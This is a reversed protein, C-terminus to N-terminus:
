YWLEPSSSGGAATLVKAPAIPALNADFPRRGAIEEAPAALQEYSAGATLSRGIQDREKWPPRAPAPATTAVGPIEGQASGAASRSSTVDPSSQSFFAYSLGVSAFALAIASATAVRARRKMQARGAARGCEYLICERQTETPPLTAGALRRALRDLELDDLPADNSM